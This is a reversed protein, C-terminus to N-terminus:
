RHLLLGTLRSKLPRRHVMNWLWPWWALWYLIRYVPSLNRIRVLVKRGEAARGSEIEYRAQYYFGRAEAERFAEPYRADIGPNDACLQELTRFRESAHHKLSKVAWSSAGVRYLSLVEPVVCVPGKAALKIFLNYDEFMSFSEDIEIKYRRLYDVSIMTTQLNAEFNILQNAFGEGTRYRPLIDRIVTGDERMERIGGYCLAFDRDGIADIQRHLRHPLCVDDHDQFAIWAGKAQALALRRAAGLPVTTEGRFYRLRSDFSKAIRETDDTSANDWFVIEWDTFTQNYISEISARLFREGNLCNMVVTVLPM